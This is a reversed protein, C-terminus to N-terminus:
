SRPGKDVESKRHLVRESVPGEKVKLENQCPIRIMRPGEVVLSGRDRPIM